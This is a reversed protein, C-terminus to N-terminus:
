DPSAYQGRAAAVLLSRVVYSTTTTLAGSGAGARVRGGAHSCILPRVRACTGFLGAAFDFGSALLRFDFARRLDTARLSRARAHRPIVVGWGAPWGEVERGGRRRENAVGEAPATSGGAGVRSARQPSGRAAITARPCTSLTTRGRRRPSFVRSLRQHGEHAM